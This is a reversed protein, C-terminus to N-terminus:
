RPLDGDLQPFTDAILAIQPSTVASIRIVRLRGGPEYEMLEAGAPLAAIAAQTARNREYELETAARRDDRAILYRWLGGLCRAANAVRLPQAM